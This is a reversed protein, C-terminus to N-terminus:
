GTRRKTMTIQNGKENHEVRDMFTQILLLGRGTVRGLNTPDTPDPLTAPDFGEGEDRVAFSAEQRTVTVEVFVRRDRYPVQTRREEALRYFQKEDAERLESDLGLNGHLIANTLAEHLAVGVLILGSPECAKMRELTQEIHGVLPAVLGTDNALVFHSEHRTLSELVRQQNRNTQSAALVQDLTEALDRALSKKPVYSAAGKQLAQIAIDESGHATMLIVPVLPFRSRIAQTLELGDMEPMLLDTLVIDPPRRALEDLAERGNAAFVAGWGPLKHVIGGALHRDVPSDDVVLVTYEPTTGAPETSSAHHPNM